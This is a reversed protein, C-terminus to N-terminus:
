SPRRQLIEKFLAEQGRTTDDWSFDEAYRRTAARDPLAGLLAAVTSAIAAASRAPILLGAEPATVAEATGWVDTAAVPTGCAMAELLVNAWGERSSALVLVDAASYIEALRDHPLQGLFRVRGAVGAEGSRRELAEREPGSGAILLTVGPLDALADIVLHHGKREILHGVSLLVRGEVGLRARAAARDVPRFSELDVGNRLVTVKGAPVGLDTLATKLAECVTILHDAQGAAWLLQRRPLAFSPILNVDTGRATIVLKKGLRRAIMAAAVGDPYFYHADILDFDWDRQLRRAAGVTWAYLLSPAATMGVKPIVPYRPHDIDLGHRRERAPAAAHRAWDGFIPRSSPFWPVPAIVRSEVAGGAVLHRLRNEVFIGNAPQAANPFLTTYTLIRLPRGADRSAQPVRVSRDISDPRM